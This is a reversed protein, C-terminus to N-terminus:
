KTHGKIRSQLVFIFNCQVHPWQNWNSVIQLLSNRDVSDFAKQFDIFSLFTEKGSLKRNRLVTCPVIIHDICSKSARFGNQEEVLINNSLLYKKLRTNLNRSYLKAVCCMITIFRNQLPDRQDKGKKPIPKIDSYDWETPNLGTSFCLCLFRHLLLKANVNKFAKNPIELYAKNKQKSNTADSDENYSIESNLM